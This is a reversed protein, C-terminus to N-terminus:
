QVPARLPSIRPISAVLKEKALESMRKLLARRILFSFRFCGTAVV